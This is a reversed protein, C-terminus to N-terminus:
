RINSSRTKQNEQWRGDGQSKIDLYEMTQKGTDLIFFPEIKLAKRFVQGAM